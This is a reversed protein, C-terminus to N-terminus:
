ATASSGDEAFSTDGTKQWVQMYGVKEARKMGPGMASEMDMSRPVHIDTNDAKDDFPSFEIIIGGMRLSKLINRLTIHYEPIHELVDALIIAGFQEKPPIAVRPNFKWDTWESHTPIFDVFETLNRKQVRYMAFSYELQGIGFYASKIGNEALYIVNNGVGGAYDLVPGDEPSFTELIELYGHVANAYLYNTSAFYYWALETETKPNILKHEGAFHHMGLRRIRDNVEQDTLGSFDKFDKLVDLNTKDARFEKLAGESFSGFGGKGDYTFFDRCMQEDCEQTSKLSSSCEGHKLAARASQAATSPDMAPSALITYLLFLNCAALVVIMAIFHRRPLGTLRRELARNKGMTEQSM